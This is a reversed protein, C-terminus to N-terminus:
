LLIAETPHIDSRSSIIGGSGNKKNKSFDLVNLSVLPTQSVRRPEECVDGGDGDNNNNNNNNSSAGNDGLFGKENRGGGYCGDSSGGRL